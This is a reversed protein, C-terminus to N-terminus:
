FLNAMQGAERYDFLGIVVFNANDKATSSNYAELVDIKKRQKVPTDDINISQIRAELKQMAKDTPKSGDTATIKNNM